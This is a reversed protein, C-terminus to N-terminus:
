LSLFRKVLNLLVNSHDTSIPTTQIVIVVHNLMLIKLKSCSM